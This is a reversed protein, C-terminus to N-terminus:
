NGSRSSARRVSKNHKEAPVTGTITLVQNVPVLNFSDILALRSVFTLFVGLM